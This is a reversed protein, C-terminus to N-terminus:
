VGEGFFEGVDLCPCDKKSACHMDQSGMILAQPFLKKLRWFLDRSAHYIALILPDVPRGVENLEGEHCIGISMFECVYFDVVKM